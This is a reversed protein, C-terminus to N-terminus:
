AWNEARLVAEHWKKILEEGNFGAEPHFVTANKNMNKIGAMYAAGRSTTEMDAPRIVDIGLLNSQFQMLFNNTSAGGDAKIQAVPIDTNNRIIDLVDLVQYAIAELAARAIHCKTTGRTIGIILGRAYMDWYPAGLGALAPVIYVGGTDKVQVALDESEPATKIIGLQDRLWQVLAGCIFSSGEIAYGVKGDISWSITNILGGPAKIYKGTNVLMFSGTGYTNKVDGPETCCQGFLSSQQDGIMGGIMVDAGNINAYGIKGSTGVVDPLMAEPIDFYKLLEEDWKVEMINFLMTRSANTIDTVHKKGGTLMWVLYSDMTGCKLEGKQAKEHLNLNDLIWKIKTASFYADVPLGTKATIIDQMGEKIIRDCYDATRRCQWVIADYVPKGTSKDWVVVTERQNTIGISAIDKVNLSNSKVLEDLVQLTGIYIEYADQQVWGPHPTKISLQRYSSGLRRGKDDYLVARVSTTGEDISIVYM